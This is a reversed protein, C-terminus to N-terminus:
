ENIRSLYEPWEGIDIWSNESVPFVGVRRNEARLKEILTTIHYFENQPIESILHPELIYLGTNILYTLEPKEVLKDLIGDNGTEVTGYPIKFSKLAAVVTLENNNEKHYKLIESYDDMIMIDCNSVFFTENISESLLHLSGATGLPIPEQFYQVNYDTEAQTDLYYKIMEARYNVSIFFRDCGFNLFSDMIDEIMTKNGIPILPKPLVNTIPRLRSGKGGAMIVVPLDLKVPLKVEEEPMIDEWYIVKKLYGLADVVPMAEVRKSVMLNKVDEFSDQDNVITILERLVADVPTDLPFNKIIARQIDGLSLVGVFKKDEEVIFLVKRKIEDMHKLASFLTHNRTIISNGFM